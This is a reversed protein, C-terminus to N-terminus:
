EEFTFNSEHLNVQKGNSLRMMANAAIGWIRNDSDCYSTLKRRWGEVDGKFSVAIMSVGEQLVLHVNHEIAGGSHPLPVDECSSMANDVLRHFDEGPRSEIYLFERGKM